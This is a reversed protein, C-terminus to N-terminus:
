ELISPVRFQGDESDPANKMADEQTITHKAEDKRFVNKLDLVHTTPEIGETDLENLKEAYTIIASLHETFQEAEEETIELRALHAVHKVQDKTIDAM